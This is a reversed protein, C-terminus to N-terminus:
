RHTGSVRWSSLAPLRQGRAAGAASALCAMRTELPRLAPVPASGRGGGAREEGDRSRVSVQSEEKAQECDPDVVVAEQRVGHREAAHPLGADAALEAALADVLVARALADQVVDALLKAPRDLASEPETSSSSSRPLSRRLFPAAPLARPNSLVSTCSPNRIITEQTESCTDILM